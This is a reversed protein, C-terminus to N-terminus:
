PTLETGDAAAARRDSIERKVQETITRTTSSAHAYTAAVNTGTYALVITALAAIAGDPMPQRLVMAAVALGVIAFLGMVSFIFKRGLEM